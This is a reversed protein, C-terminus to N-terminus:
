RDVCAKKNSEVGLAMVPGRKVPGPGGLGSAGSRSSHQELRWAGIAEGLEPLAAGKGKMEQYVLFLFYSRLRAAHRPWERSPPGHHEEITQAQYYATHFCCDNFGNQSPM